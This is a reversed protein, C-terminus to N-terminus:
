IVKCYLCKFGKEMKSEFHNLYHKVLILDHFRFALLSSEISFNATECPHLFRKMSTMCLDKNRYIVKGMQQVWKWDMGSDKHSSRGARKIKVLLKLIGVELMMCVM